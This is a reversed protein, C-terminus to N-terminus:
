ILKVQSSPGVKDADARTPLEATVLSKADFLKLDKKAAYFDDRMVALQDEYRQQLKEGFSKEVAGLKTLKAEVDLLRHNFTHARQDQKNSIQNLSTVM